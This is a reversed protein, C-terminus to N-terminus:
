SAPPEGDAPEGGKGYTGNEIAEIAEFVAVIRDPHKDVEDFSEVTKCTIRGDVTLVRYVSVNIGCGSQASIGVNFPLHHDLAVVKSVLQGLQLM